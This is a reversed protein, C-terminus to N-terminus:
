TASRVFTIVNEIEATQCFMDFPQSSVIQYGGQLLKAADRAQSAPHCSIYVIREPVAQLIADLVAPHAGKRPPDLIISDAHIGSAILEPLSEEALGQIFSANECKNIDANARADQVSSTSLELGYVQHCHKAAILSMTGTGSYIDILISNKSLAAQEIAYDYLQHAISHNVQQFSLPSLKFRLGHKAEVLHDQGASVIREAQTSDEDFADANIFVLSVLQPIDKQLTQLLPDVSTPLSGDLRLILMLQGQQNTRTVVQRLSSHDLWASTSLEDLLITVAKEAAESSLFCVETQIFEKSKSGFFGARLVGDVQQIQWTTKNRYRWPDEMGIVPSVQIDVGTIKRLNNQISEQKFTLQTAYDMHQAACGGCRTFVPCLPKVRAPSPQLVEVLRATKINKQQKALQAKIKERPLAFPIFTVQGDIRCIGEGQYGLSTITCVLDHQSGTM